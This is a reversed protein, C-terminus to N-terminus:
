QKASIKRPFFDLLFYLVMITFEGWKLDYYFKLPPMNKTVNIDNWPFGLQVAGESRALIIFIITLM